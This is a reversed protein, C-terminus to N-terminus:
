ISKQVQLDEPKPVDSTQSSGTSYWGLCDLNPFMKKYAELRRKLFEENIIIQNTPGEQKYSLEITNIVELTKGEQKGLLAGIVRTQKPEIYKSRNCHDSINMVVLPHVQVSLNNQSKIINDM